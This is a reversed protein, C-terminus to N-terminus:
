QNNKPPEIKLEDMINDKHINRKGTKADVWLCTFLPMEIIDVLDEEKIYLKYKGKENEITLKVVNM